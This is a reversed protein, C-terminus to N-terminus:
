EQTMSIFKIDEKKCVMDIMVHKRLKENTKGEKFDSGLDCVNNSEASSEAYEWTKNSKLIVNKGDETKAKITQGISFNTIILCIISLTIKKM